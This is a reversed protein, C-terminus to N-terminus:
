QVVVNNVILLWLKRQVRAVQARIRVKPSLVMNQCGDTRAWFASQSIRPLPDLLVMYEGNNLRRDVIGFLTENPHLEDIFPAGAARLSVLYRSRAVEAVRLVRVSVQQGVTLLIPDEARIPPSFEYKPLWLEQGHPAELVVGDQQISVITAPIVTNFRLATRQPEWDQGDRLRRLRFQWCNGVIGSAFIEMKEGIPPVWHGDQERVANPFRLHGPRHSHYIGGILCRPDVFVHASKRQYPPRQKGHKFMTAQFTDGPQVNKPIKNVPVHLLSSREVSNLNRPYVKPVVGIWRKDPYVRNVVVTLEDDVVLEHEPSVMFATADMEPLRVVYGAELSRVVVAKLRIRKNMALKAKIIATSAAHKAPCNGGSLARMTFTQSGLNELTIEGDGCEVQTVQGRELFVRQSRSNPVENERISVVLPQTDILVVGVTRSSSPPGFEIRGKTRNVGVITTPLFESMLAIVNDPSITDPIRVSDMLHGKEDCLQRLFWAMQGQVCESPLRRSAASIWGLVGTRGESLATLLIDRLQREIFEQYETSPMLLYNWAIEAEIQLLPSVDVFWRELSQRLSVVENRVSDGSTQIFAQLRYMAQIRFSSELSVGDVANGEVMTSWCLQSELYCPYKPDLAKRCSRVASFPIFPWASLVCALRVAEPEVNVQDEILDSVNLKCLAPLM